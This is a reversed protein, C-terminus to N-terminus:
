GRKPLTEPLSELVALVLHDSTEKAIEKVTQYEQAFPKSSKLAVELALIAASQKHSATSADIAEKNRDAISNFAKM